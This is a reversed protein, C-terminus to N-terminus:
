SESAQLDDGHNTLQSNPLPSPQQDRELLAYHSISRTVGDPKNTEEPTASQTTIPYSRQQSNTTHELTCM